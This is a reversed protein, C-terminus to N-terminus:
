STWLLFFVLQPAQSCASRRTNGPGVTLTFSHFPPTPQSVPSRSTPPCLAPTPPAAPFHGPGPKLLPSAICSGTQSPQFLMQFSFSVFSSLLNPTHLSLALLSWTVLVFPGTIAGQAATPVCCPSHTRSPRVSATKPSHELCQASTGPLEPLPPAPNFISPSPSSLFLLPRMGDSSHPTHFWSLEREERKIM